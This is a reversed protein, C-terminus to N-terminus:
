LSEEYFAPIGSPSLPLPRQWLALEVPLPNYYHPFLEGGRSGEWKLYPELQETKFAILLLDPTDRFYKALTGAIQAAASLHIFGDRVDDTSGNFRGSTVAADWLSAPVIKYVTTCNQTTEHDTM